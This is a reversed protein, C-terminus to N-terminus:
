DNKEKSASNDNKAITNKVFIWQRKWFMYFLVAAIVVMAALIITFGQPISYINNLNFGEM